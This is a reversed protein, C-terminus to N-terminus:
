ESTRDFLTIGGGIVENAIQVGVYIEVVSAIIEEDIRVAVAIFISLSLTSTSLLLLLLLRWDTIVYSLDLNWKIEFLMVLAVLLLLVLLLLLLM